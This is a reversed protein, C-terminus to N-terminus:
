ERDGAKQPGRLTSHCLQEWELCMLSAPVSLYGLLSLPEIVPQLWGLLQAPSGECAEMHIHCVNYICSLVSSAKLTWKTDSPTVHMFLSLYVTGLAPHQFLDWYKEVTGSFGLLQCWKERAPARNRSMGSCGGWGHVPGQEYSQRQVKRGMHGQAPAGLDGVCSVRQRYICPM